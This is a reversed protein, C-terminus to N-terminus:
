HWLELASSYRREKIRRIDVDGQLPQELDGDLFRLRQETVRANAEAQVEPLGEIFTDLENWPMTGENALRLFERGLM